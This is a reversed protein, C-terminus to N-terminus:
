RGSSCRRPTVSGGASQRKGRAARGSVTGDSAPETDAAPKHRHNSEAGVTVGSVSPTDTYLQVGPTLVRGTGVAAIMKPSRTPLSSM